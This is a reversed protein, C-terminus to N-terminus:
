SLSTIDRERCSLMVNFIYKTFNSMLTRGKVLKLLITDTNLLKSPSAM